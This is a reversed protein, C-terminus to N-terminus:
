PQSGTAQSVIGRGFIQSLQRKEAALGFHSQVRVVLLYAFGEGFAVVGEEIVGIASGLKDAKVVSLLRQHRELTLLHLTSALDHLLDTRQGELLDGVDDGGDVALGSEVASYEDVDQTLELSVVVRRLRKGLHEHQFGVGVGKEDLV